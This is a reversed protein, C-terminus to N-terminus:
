IRRTRPATKDGVTVPLADVCEQLSTFAASKQGGSKDRNSSNSSSASEVKEYLRRQCDDHGADAKVAM